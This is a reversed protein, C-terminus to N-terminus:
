THIYQNQRRNHIRCIYSCRQNMIPFGHLQLKLPLIMDGNEDFVYWYREGPLADLKYHKSGVYVFYNTDIKCSPAYYDPVNTRDYMWFFRTGSDDVSDAYVKKSTYYDTGPLGSYYYWYNGVAMPYYQYPDDYQAYLIM